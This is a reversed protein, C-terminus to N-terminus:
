RLTLIPDLRGTSTLTLDSGPIQYQISLDRDDQKFSCPLNVTSISDEFIIHEGVFQHASCDEVSVMLLQVDEGAGNTFTVSVMGDVIKANECIFPAALRCNFDQNYLSAVEEEPIPEEFVLVLVIGIALLGIVLGASILVINKGEM